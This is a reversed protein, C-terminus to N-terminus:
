TTGTPRLNGVPTGSVSRDAVHLILAQRSFRVLRKGFRVHPVEKRSVLSYLTGLRVNLFRAAQAYTLLDNDTM